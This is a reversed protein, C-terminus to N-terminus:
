RPLKKSDPIIGLIPIRVERELQVPDCVRPDFINCALLIMMALLFGAIGGLLTMKQTNENVNITPLVPQDVIEMSSGRVLSEIEGRVKDSCIAKALLYADQPFPLSVQIRIIQSEENTTVSVADMAEGTSYDIGAETLALDIIKRSPIIESYAIAIKKSAEVDSDDTAKYYGTHDYNYIYASFKSTYLPSRMWASYYFAIGAFIVACLLMIFFNGVFFKVFAAISIRYEVDGDNGYVKSIVRM